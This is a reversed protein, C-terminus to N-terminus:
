ATRETQRLAHILNDQEWEEENAQMILDGFAALVRASESKGTKGIYLPSTEYITTLVQTDRHTNYPIDETMQAVQILMKKTEYRGSKVLRTSTKLKYVTKYAAPDFYELGEEDNPPDVKNFYKPAPTQTSTIEYHGQVGKVRMRIRCAAIADQINRFKGSFFKLGGQYAAYTRPM